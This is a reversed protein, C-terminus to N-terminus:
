ESVGVELTAEGITYTKVKAAYEDLGRARLLFPPFSRFRLSAEVRIPGATGEPVPVFLTYTREYLPPLSSSFHEAARWPFVEPNGDADVFRSSLSILDPDGYPDLASYFDRLDGNDDVHGTRYLVRGEGDTATLELWCQRIFTTGTPLNHGDIENRITVYLDLQSGPAVPDAADLSVSGAGELLGRVRAEIEAIRVPDSLFEDSMPVDVGVFSHDHLGEREPGMVAAKGTYTPMHCDQCTKGSAAAPSELWEAFPREVNMGSVEIVDHCGGCFESTEHLPSYESAHLASPAPDAIPGRMPGTPDLVHGSNFARELGAVKHCAECTIGEQVIPPRDEFRFGPQVEGGRTGIATHCQMCFRDQDGGFDEQRVTVLARFVPDVIAYAHNSTRWQDYHTPHCSQCEAASRFDAPDLTPELPMSLPDSVVGLVESADTEGGGADADDAGEGGSADCGGLAILCAALVGGGLSKSATSIACM